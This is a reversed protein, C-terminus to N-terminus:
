FSANAGCNEGDFLLGFRGVGVLWPVKGEAKPEEWAASLLGSTERRRANKPVSGGCQKQV